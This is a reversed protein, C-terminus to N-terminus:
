HMEQPIKMAKDGMAMLREYTVSGGRFYGNKKMYSLLNMAKDLSSDQKCLSDILAKYTHPPEEQILHRKVLIDFSYENLCHGNKIRMEIIDCVEQDRGSEFLHCIMEDYIRVTLFLNNLCMERFLALAEDRRGVNFHGMILILYSFDNPKIGSEFMKDFVEESGDIDTAVHFGYMLNNYIDADPIEGQKTLVGFIAFAEIIRGKVCFSKLAMEYTDIDPNIKKLLMERLLECSSDSGSVGYILSNYTSVDTSIGQVIMRSYLDYADNVLNGSKCNCLAKIVIKYTTIDTEDLQRAPSRKAHIDLLRKASQVHGAYCMLDILLVYSKNSLIGKAVSDDYFDLAEWVRNSIFLGELLLIHFLAQPQFGNKIVTFLFCFGYNIKNMTSPVPPKNILHEFLRDSVIDYYPPNPPYLSHFSLNFLLAYPFPHFLSSSTFFLPINPFGYMKPTSHSAMRLEPLARSFVRRLMKQLYIVM